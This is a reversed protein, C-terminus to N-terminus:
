KATQSRAERARRVIGDFTTQLVSISSELENIAQDDLTDSIGHVYLLAIVRKGLQIPFAAAEHESTLAFLKLFRAQATTDCSAPQGLWREKNTMCHGLMGTKVPLMLALVTEPDDLHGGFGELGMALGDKVTFFVAGGFRQRLFSMLATLVASRDQAQAIESLVDAIEKHAPEPESVSKPTAEANINPGNDSAHTSVMELASRAGLDSLFFGRELREVSSDDLQVVQLSGYGSDPLADNDQFDDVNVELDDTSPQSAYYHQWYTKMTLESAVCPIIGVNLKEALQNLVAVQTPDRFCVVLKKDETGAWAIPLLGYNAATQASVLRLVQPDYHVLHRVLAPMVQHQKGLAIAVEDPSALGSHILISGLRDKGGSQEQLSQNLAQQTLVGADILYEGLRM